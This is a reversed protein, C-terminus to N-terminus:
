KDGPTGKHKHLTLERTFLQQSKLTFSQINRICPQISECLRECCRSVVGTNFGNLSGKDMMGMGMKWLQKGKVVLACHGHGIERKMAKNVGLGGCGQGRAGVVVFWMWFGDLHRKSVKGRDEGEEGM